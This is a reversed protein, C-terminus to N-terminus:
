KTFYILCKEKPCRKKGEKRNNLVFISYLYQGSADHVCEIITTEKLAISFPTGYTGKDYIGEREAMDFMLSVLVGRCDKNKYVDKIFEKCAKIKLEEPLMKYYKNM